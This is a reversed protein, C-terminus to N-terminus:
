LALIGSGRALQAHGARERFRLRDTCTDRHEARASGGFSRDSRGQLHSHCRALERDAISGVIQTMESPVQDIGMVVHGHRRLRPVLTRGLWGSSGTVLIKM